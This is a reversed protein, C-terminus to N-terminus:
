HDSEPRLTKQSLFSGPVYITPHAVDKWGYSAVFQYNQIEVPEDYEVSGGAYLNNVYDGLGKLM